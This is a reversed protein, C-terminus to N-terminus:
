GGHVVPILTLQDGDSLRTSTGQMLKSDVGNILAIIASSLGNDKIIRRLAVQNSAFYKELLDMLTAGNSLEITQEIESSSKLWGLSIVKVKLRVERVAPLPDALRMTTM